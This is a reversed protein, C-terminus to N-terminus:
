TEKQEASPQSPATVNMQQAMAQTKELHKGHDQELMQGFQKVDESQGNQQALKGAQVEAMDGEIAEQLFTQDDKSAKQAVGSNSKMSPSARRKSVSNSSQAQAATAGLALAAASGVALIPNRMM